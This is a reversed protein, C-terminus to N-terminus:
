LGRAKRATADAVALPMRAARIGALKEKKYAIMKNILIILHRFKENDEIPPVYCRGERLHKYFRRLEIKMKKDIAHIGCKARTDRAIDADSIITAM